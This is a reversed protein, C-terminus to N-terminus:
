GVAEGISAEIEGALRELHLNLEDHARQLRHYEDAINLAALIALNVTTTGERGHGVERMRESVYTALTKIYGEDEDSRITLSQGAVSIRVERKM